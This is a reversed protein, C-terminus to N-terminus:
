SKLSTRYKPSTRSAHSRAAPAHLMLAHWLPLEKSSSTRCAAPSPRVPAFRSRGSYCVSVRGRLPRKGARLSRAAHGDRVGDRPALFIHRRPEGPVAAAIPRQWSYCRTPATRFRTHAGASSRSVPALPSIAPSTPSCEPRPDGPTPDEFVLPIHDVDPLVSGALFVPDSGGLLYGTALHAPEDFLGIAFWPM